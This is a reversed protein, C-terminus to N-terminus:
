EETKDKHSREPAGVAPSTENRKRGSLLLASLAVCAEGAIEPKSGVGPVLCFPPNQDKGHRANEQKDGYDNQTGGCPLEAPLTHVQRILSWVAIVRRHQITVQM